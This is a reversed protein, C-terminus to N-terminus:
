GHSRGHSFKLRIPLLAPTRFCQCSGYATYLLVVETFYRNMIYVIKTAIHGEFCRWMDAVEEDLTLCHDWIVLVAAAVTNNNSGLVHPYFTTNVYM